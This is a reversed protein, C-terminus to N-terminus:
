PRIGAFENSQLIDGMLMKYDGSEKFRGSHYVMEESSPSRFLFRNFMLLVQGEAYDSSEFFIKMYDEKSDGVQLFLVSSFGDVMKVGEQQEYATPSRLMFHQITSIVFNLSGMNIEDYFLNDICRKQMGSITISGSKLDAPCTLLKNLRNLEVILQERMSAYAPNNILSQLAGMSTKIQATDTNNLLEARWLEFERDYFTPDQLIRNLVERRSEPTFGQDEFIDSAEEWESDLPKRGLIGIYAKQVFNSRLGAPLTYDPPAQNGPIIVQDEKSCSPLALFSLCFLGNLCIRFLKKLKM